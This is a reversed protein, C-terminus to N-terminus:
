LTAVTLKYYFLVTRPFHAAFPKTNNPCLNHMSFDKEPFILQPFNHHSFPLSLPTLHDIREAGSKTTNPCLSFSVSKTRLTFIFQSLGKRPFEAWLSFSFSPPTPFDKEESYDLCPPHLSLSVSASTKKWSHSNTISCDKEPFIFRPLGRPSIPSHCSLSPPTGARRWWALPQLHKSLSVSFWLKERSNRIPSMRKQSFPPHSLFTPPTIVKHPTPKLFPTKINLTVALNLRLPPYPISGWNPQWARKKQVHTVRKWIGPGQFKIKWRKNKRPFCVSKWM